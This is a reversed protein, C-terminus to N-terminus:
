GVRHDMIPSQRLVTLTAAQVRSCINTTSTPAAPWASHSSTYAMSPAPIEAASPLIDIGM